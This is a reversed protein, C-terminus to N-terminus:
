KEHRRRLHRAAFAGLSAIVGASGLAAAVAAWSPVRARRGLVLAAGAAGALLASRSYTLVAVTTCLTGGALASRRSLGPLFSLLTGTVAVLGLGNAYTVPWALRDSGPGAAEPALGSLKAALGATAVLLVAQRLRRLLTERDVLSGAWLAAAYLAPLPATRLAAGPQGWLASLATLGALALLALAAAPPGPLPRLAYAAALGLWAAAALLSYTSEYYGGALLAAALVGAALLTAPM